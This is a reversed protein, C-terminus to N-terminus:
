DYTLKNNIGNKLYWQKYKLRHFELLFDRSDRYLYKDGLKEKIKKTADKL